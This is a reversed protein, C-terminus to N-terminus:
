GQDRTNQWVLAAAGILGIEDGLSTILKFGRKLIHSMANSQIYSEVTPKLYHWDNSVGGGIVIVDPDFIHLINVLGAGLALAAHEVVEVAIPDERAAAEFVMQSSIRELRGSVMEALVSGSKKEALERARDAVATGSALSELCGVHGCKCGAGHRDITMHGLEGAMGHAGWIPQGNVVIGGGIGTSVTLYVLTHAGAGAGYHYEGLAALTADNGVFIPANVKGHLLSKFSVGDLMPLNPPSYMIGTKPDVPGALALGVGAVQRDGAESFGRRILTEIAAIISDTGLQANTAARDRWLLKGDRSALAARTSTGGVDMVLALSGGSSTPGNAQESM